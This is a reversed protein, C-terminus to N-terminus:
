MLCDNHVASDNHRQVDRQGDASCRGGCRFRGVRSGAVGCLDRVEGHVAEGDPTRQVGGSVSGFADVLFDHASPIDEYVLIPIIRELKAM